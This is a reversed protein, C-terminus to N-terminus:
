LLLLARPGPGVRAAQWVWAFCERYSGRRPVSHDARPTSQNQVRACWPPPLGPLGAKPSTPSDVGGFGTFGLPADGARALLLGALRPREPPPEPATILGGSGDGGSM